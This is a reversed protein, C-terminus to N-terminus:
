GNAIYQLVAEFVDLRTNTNTIDSHTKHAVFPFKDTTERVAGAMMLNDVFDFNELMMHTDKARAHGDGDVFYDFADRQRTTFNEAVNSYGYVPKGVGRMYGMEFATGTDMGVGQYPTMNAIVADCKDMLEINKLYIDMGIDHLERGAFEVVNDLPFVGTCGYKACLDKKQGAIDLANELFVDPGALYIKM